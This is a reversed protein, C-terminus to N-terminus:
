DQEEKRSRQKRKSEQGIWTFELTSWAHELFVRLTHSLYSWGFVILFITLQDEYDKKNILGRNEENEM